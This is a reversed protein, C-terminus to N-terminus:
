AVGMQAGMKISLSDKWTHINPLVADRTSLLQFFSICIFFSIQDLYKKIWIIDQNFLHYTYHDIKIQYIIQHIM